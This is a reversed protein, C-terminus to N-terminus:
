ITTVNNQDGVMTKRYIESYINEHSKLCEAAQSIGQGLREGNHAYWAGSKEVIGRQVAVELLSKETDFGVGYILDVVCNGYPPAIKNKVVKLKMEQGIITDEGQKIKSGPRTEMRVSAYFKLAQGGSTTEPSGFIVGIKMRIQNIFIAAVNSKNVVHTLKRMAQSMLRAQVGMQPEGYEGELEAKPVLAAVSDVVVISVANSSAAHEVMGLAEEGNNPQSIIFRSPDIGITQAYHPDLAHEADIFHALKTNDLAQASAVFQLALTTKGSSEVGFIETVRGRPIGGCLLAVDIGPVNSPIVEVRKDVSGSLAFGSGEGFTKTLSAVYNEVSSLDSQSVEIKKKERPPSV